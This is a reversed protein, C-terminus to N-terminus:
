KSTQFGIQFTHIAAKKLNTEGSLTTLLDDIRFYRKTRHPISSTEVSIVFDSIESQCFEELLKYLLMMIVM